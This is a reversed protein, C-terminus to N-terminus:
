LGGVQSEDDWVTPLSERHGILFGPSWRSRLDIRLFCTEMSAPQNNFISDPASKLQSNRSQLILEFRRVGLKNWVM